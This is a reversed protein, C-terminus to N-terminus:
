VLDNLSYPAKSILWKKLGTKFNQGTLQKLHNPLRNYFIAGKIFPSNETRSYNQRLRYFDSRQRTNHNHINSGLMTYVEDEKVLVAVQFIYMAYITMIDYKVFLDKCTRRSDVKSM